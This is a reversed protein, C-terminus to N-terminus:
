DATLWFQTFEGQPDYTEAQKALNFRRQGRPDAGVGALYQWNGWNSAVDYDILQQEFWAAGYRWDVALENVLCSAVLQRGRNSMWGTAKLQKMCANILPWETEGECWAKFRQAYFSTLPRKGNIGRFSFLRSGHRLAYLQYYERWLLEFFIWYTSENAEVEEEYGQLQALLQRPSLCGHALWPSFGTSLFRGQLANRTQKYSSPHRSAFYNKLHARASAEGGAREPQTAESCLPADELSGAKLGAPPPPLVRIQGSPAPRPLSEVQKRFQSFTPPLEAPTIPLQDLSWIRNQNTQIRKLDPFKQELQSLLQNKEYDAGQSAYLRSVQHKEILNALSTLPRGDLFHLHQGLSLLQQNLEILSDLLFRWRHQGLRKLSFPGPRPTARFLTPDLAYVIILQDNNDAAQELLPLDSLRLDNTLLYLGTQAM